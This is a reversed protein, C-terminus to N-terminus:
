VRRLGDILVDILRLASPQWDPGASGYAFGFLAHLLDLPAVDERIAGAARARTILLEVAETIVPGSAAYLETTGGAMANLAPAILKKTAIYDVFLRMWARLAELPPHSSSLEAAAAALQEVGRRYVDALIADRNPFHRYLTGIGVGARRAIEELSIDTGSESFAAKAVELLKERNRQSDARPKRTSCLFKM